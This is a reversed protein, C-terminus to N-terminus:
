LTQLRETRKGAADRVVEVVEEACDETIPLHRETVDTGAAPQAAVDFVDHDRALAAMREDFADEGETAASDALANGHMDLLNHSFRESQEGGLQRSMNDDLLPQTGASRRHHAVGGLDM